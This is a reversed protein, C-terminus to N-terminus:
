RRTASDSARTLRLRHHRPDFTVAFENLAKVGINGTEGLAPFTVTPQPFEHRGLRITEQLRAQKIETEGSLSRAKGVATVDSSLPLDEVLSAPLVFAGIGNGSDLHASIKTTGISLEVTPVGQEIKCDLIEKGDAAPLEGREFRVLKGPFDLTVLYDAFLELGLIGDLEALRPTAKYNRSGATVDSFRLGGIEISELRVMQMRQPGRASGDTVQRDSSSKIGLKETLASDIRAQGQAGTDIEFLFPGKGNVMVEIAPLTAVFRMPVTFGGAPSRARQAPITVATAAALSAVILAKSFERM